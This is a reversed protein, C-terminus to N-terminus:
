RLAGNYVWINIYIPLMNWTVLYVGKVAQDQVKRRHSAGFSGTYLGLVTSIILAPIVLELTRPEINRSPIKIYINIEKIIDNKM